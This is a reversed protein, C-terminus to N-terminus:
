ATSSLFSEELIRGTPQKNSVIIENTTNNNRSSAPQLSFSLSLRTGVACM